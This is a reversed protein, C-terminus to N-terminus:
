AYFLHKGIKTRFKARNFAPVSENHFFVSGKTHDIYQKKIYANYAIEKIRTDIKVHNYSKDSRYWSFQNKQKVVSCITEPFRKSNVRNLTVMAVAIKGHDSEGRAEFHINLALCRLEAEQEKTAEPVKNDAITKSFFSLVFSFIIIKIM